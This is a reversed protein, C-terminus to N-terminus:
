PSVARFSQYSNGGQLIRWSALGGSGAMSTSIVPFPPKPQEASSGLSVGLLNYDGGPVCGTLFLNVWTGDLVLILKNAPFENTSTARARFEANPYRMPTLWQATGNADAQVLAVLSWAPTALGAKGEITYLNGLTGNKLVLKIGNPEAIVSLTPEPPYIETKTWVNNPFWEFRTGDTRSENYWLTYWAVCSNYYDTPPYTMLSSGFALVGPPIYLPGGIANTYPSAGNCTIDDIDQVGPRHVFFEVLKIGKGNEPLVVWWYDNTPSGVTYPAAENTTMPFWTVRITWQGSAVPAGTFVLVAILLLRNVNM